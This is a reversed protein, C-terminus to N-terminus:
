FFFMGEKKDFIQEIGVILINEFNIEISNRSILFIIVGSNVKVFGFQINDVTISAIFL